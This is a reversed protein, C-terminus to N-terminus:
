SHGGTITLIYYPYLASTIPICLARIVEVRREERDVVHKGINTKELATAQGGLGALIMCFDFFTALAMWMAATCSAASLALSVAELLWGGARSDRTQTSPVPRPGEGGVCPKGVPLHHHSATRNTGTQELSCPLPTSSAPRTKRRRLSRPMGPPLLCGPTFFCFMTQPRAILLYGSPTLSSSNHANETHRCAVYM